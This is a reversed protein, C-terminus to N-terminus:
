LALGQLIRGILGYDHDKRRPDTGRTKAKAEKSDNRKRESSASVSGILLFCACFVGNEPDDKFSRISLLLARSLNLWSL